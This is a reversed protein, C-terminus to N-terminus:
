LAPLTTYSTGAYLHLPHHVSLPRLHLHCPWHHLTRDFNTTEMRTKGVHTGHFKHPTEALAISLGGTSMTSLFWAWTFHKVRERLGVSSVDSSREKEEEKEAAVKPSSGGESSM